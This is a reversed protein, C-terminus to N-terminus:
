SGLYIGNSIWTATGDQVEVGDTTPWTPATAGSTGAVVCTFNVFIVGAELFGVPNGSTVQAGAVYATNPAWPASVNLQTVNGYDPADNIVLATPGIPLSVDPRVPGYLLPESQRAPLRWPDFVDLDDKCVYLGPYNPDPMLEAMPFKVSCRGCIGIALRSKGRTDLWIPM